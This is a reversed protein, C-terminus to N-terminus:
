AATATAAICGRGRLDGVRYANFSDATEGKGVYGVADVVSIVELSVAFGVTVTNSGYVENGGVVVGNLEGYRAELAIVYLFSVGENLSGCIDYEGGRYNGVGVEGTDSVLETVYHPIEGNSSRVARLESKGLCKLGLLCYKDVEPVGAATRAYVLEGIQIRRIFLILIVNLDDCEVVVGAIVIICYLDELSRHSKGEGNCLIIGSESRGEIDDSIGGRDHDVAVTSDTKDLNATKGTFLGENSEKIVEGGAVILLLDELRYVLESGCLKGVYLHGGGILDACHKVALAEACDVGGLGLGRVGLVGPGEENALVTVLAENVGGVGIFIAGVRCHVRAYLELCTLCESNVPECIGLETRINEKNEYVTLVNILEGTDALVPLGYIGVYSELVARILYGEYVYLVLIGVHSVVAHVKFIHTGNVYCLYAALGVNGTLCRGLRISVTEAELLIDSGNEIGNVAVIVYSGCVARKKESVKHSCGLEGLIVGQVIETIVALKDVALAVDVLDEYVVTVVSNVASEVSVTGYSLLELAKEVSRCFLDAELGAIRVLPKLYALVVISVSGAALLKLVGDSTDREERCEIGNDGGVGLNLVVGNLIVAANNHRASELVLENGGGGACIEDLRLGLILYVTPYEVLIAFNKVGCLYNVTGVVALRNVGDVDAHDEIKLCALGVIDVDCVVINVCLALEGEGNLIETRGILLEVKCRGAVVGINLAGGTLYVAVDGATDVDLKARVAVIVLETCVSSEARDNVSIEGESSGYGGVRNQLRDLEARKIESEALGVLHYNCLELLKAAVNVGAAIIVNSKPTICVGLPFRDVLKFLHECALIM